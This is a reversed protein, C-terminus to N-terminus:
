FTTFSKILINITGSYYMLCIMCVKAINRSFIWQPAIDWCGIQIFASFSVCVCVCVCVSALKSAYIELTLNYIPEKILFTQSLIWIMIQKHTMWFKLVLLAIHCQVCDKMLIANGFSWKSMEHRKFSSNEKKEAQQILMIM